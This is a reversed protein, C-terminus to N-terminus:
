VTITAALFESYNIRQNEAYDLEMIINKLEVATMEFNANKIATEL